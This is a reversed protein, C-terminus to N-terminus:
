WEEEEGLGHKELVGVICDSFTENCPPADATLKEQRRVLQVFVDHMADAAEERDGLLRWCRRHVMPGYRSYMEKVDIAM